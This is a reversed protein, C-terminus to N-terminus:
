TGRDHIEYTLHPRLAIMREAIAQGAPDARARLAQVVGVHDADSKNQNLKFSAEVTEVVMEIAVIANMLVDRRRPSVQGISWPPKPTLAAEFQAALRDLHDATHEHPVLRVPGSLQVMEYLWTPVQDDRAYWDPSVYTDAGSVAILWSGAKAALEALPNVRAVHFRVRPVEGDAEVVSYPLLSAVPRGRDCAVVLGFGRAAAFAMAVAQHAKFANQAYM